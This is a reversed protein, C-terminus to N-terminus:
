FKKERKKPFSNQHATLAANKQEGKNLTIGRVGEVEKRRVRGDKKEQDPTKPGKKRQTEDKKGYVFYTARKLISTVKELNVSGQFLQTRPEGRGRKGLDRKKGGKEPLDERERKISKEM